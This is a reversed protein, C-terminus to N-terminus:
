TKKKQAIAGGRTELERLEDFVDKLSSEKTKMQAKAGGFVDSLPVGPKNRVWVSASEDVKGRDRTPRQKKV